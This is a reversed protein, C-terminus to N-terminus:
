DIAMPTKKLISKIRNGTHWYENYLWNEFKAAIGKGFLLAQYNWRDQTNWRNKYEEAGRMFDFDELGLRICEVISYSFLINGINYQFYKPDFGSIYAYYRSKYKFGYLSAASVGSLKLTFLGLWAKKSFRFSERRSAVGPQEEKVFGYRIEVM